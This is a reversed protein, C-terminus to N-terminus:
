EDQEEDSGGYGIADLMGMGEAGAGFVNDPRRETQELVRRALEALMRETREPERESVDTREGPDLDLQFLRVDPASEGNTDFRWHLMWDGDRLGYLTQLGPTDWIGKETQLVATGVGRAPDLLFEADGFAPMDNSGFRALTPAIHRNSLVREDRQGAPVGPGALILPVHVLEQHLTHGHGIRGRELLEEGHDATFVIITNENLGHDEIRDLLEGVWRDGTAVSADYLDPLWEQHETPIVTALAEPDSADFNPDRLRTGLQSEYLKMGSEPFDDPAALGLRELEAPHPRHPTHPDALHVYMFFRAGANEDLWSLVSPMMEDSMWFRERAGVFSEFGQDFYRDASILPNCSFGATTYGREQLLEPLTDLSRVLTCSENSTVGHANAPLGTLLSATSPWTWSSTSSAKEFLVGRAALADLNPTTQRPYGYCSMRDARQTDMVIFVINPTQPTARTREQVVTSEIALGGFGLRLNEPPMREAADGEPISTRLTIEAGPRIALGEAGGVHRWVRKSPDWNGKRPRDCRLTEDFVSAGDVEVEFRVHIADADKPIQNYVRKDVGAATKFRLDDGDLDVPVAITVECPPVMRLSPKDGSDTEWAVVPTIVTPAPPADPRSAINRISEPQELFDHAVTRRVFTPADRTLRLAFFAPVGIAVLLAVASAAHGALLPSPKAEPRVLTRTVAFVALALGLALVSQVAIDDLALRGTYVSREATPALPWGSLVSLYLLAAFAFPGIALARTRASTTALLAAAALGVVLAQACSPFYEAALDWARIPALGRSSLVLIRLAALLGASWLGAPVWLPWRVRHAPDPDTSVTEPM